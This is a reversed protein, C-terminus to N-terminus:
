CRPSFHSFAIFLLYLGIPMGFFNEDKKEIVGKYLNGVPRYPKGLLMPDLRRHGASELSLLATFCFKLCSGGGYGSCMCSPQCCPSCPCCCPRPRSDCCCGCGCCCSPSGQNPCSCCPNIIIRSGCEGSSAPRQNRRMLMMTLLLLQNSDEDSDPM